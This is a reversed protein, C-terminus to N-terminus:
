FTYKLSIMGRKDDFNYDGGIGIYKGDKTIKKSISYGVDKPSPNKLSKPAYSVTHLIKKYAYVNYQNLNVAQTPDAKSLDYEQDPNDKDTVIAFDAGSKEQEEKVVTPVEKVVTQVVREPPQNKLDAIQKAADELQEQQMKIQANKAALDVGTSTEAKTQSEITTTKAPHFYQYIFHAGVALIIAILASIIIKKHEKIFSITVM